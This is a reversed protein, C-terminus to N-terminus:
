DDKENVNDHLDELWSAQKLKEEIKVQLKKIEINLDSVERRLNSAEIRLCQMIKEKTM